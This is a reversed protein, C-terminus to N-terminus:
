PRLKRQMADYAITSTRGKTVAVVDGSDLDIAIRTYGAPTKADVHLTNTSEQTKARVRTDGSRLVTTGDAELRGWGHGNTM